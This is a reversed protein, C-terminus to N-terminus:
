NDNVMVHVKCDCATETWNWLYQYAAEASPAEFVVTGTFDGTNHWRGIIVCDGADKELAAADMNAFMTASPSRANEFFKWTGIFLM